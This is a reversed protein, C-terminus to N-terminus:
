VSKYKYDENNHSQRFCSSSSSIKLAVGQVNSNCRVANVSNGPRLFSAWGRTPRYLKLVYGASVIQYLLAIFSITAAQPGRIFLAPSTHCQRYTANTKIERLLPAWPKIWAGKQPPSGGFKQFAELFNQGADFYV